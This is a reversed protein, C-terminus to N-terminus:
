NVCFKLVVNALDYYELILVNVCMSVDETITQQLTKALKAMTRAHETGSVDYTCVCVDDVSALIGDIMLRV